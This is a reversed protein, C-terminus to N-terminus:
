FLRLGVNHRINLAQNVMIYITGILSLYLLYERLWAGFFAAINIYYCRLIHPMQTFCVANSSIIQYNTMIESNKDCFIRRKAENMTACSIFANIYICSLSLQVFM